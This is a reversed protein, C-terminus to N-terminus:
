STYLSVQSNPDMWTEPCWPSFLIERYIYINREPVRGLTHINKWRRESNKFIRAHEKLITLRWTDRTYYRTMFIITFLTKESFIFTNFTVFFCFQSNQVTRRKRDSLFISLRIKIHRIYCSKSSSVYITRRLSLFHLKLRHRRMRILERRARRM